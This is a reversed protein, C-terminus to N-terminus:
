NDNEVKLSQKLNDEFDNLQKMIKARENEDLDPRELRKKIMERQQEVELQRVQNEKEIKAQINEIEKDKAM